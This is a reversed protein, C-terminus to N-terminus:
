TTYGYLMDVSATIATLTAGVAVPVTAGTNSVGCLKPAINRLTSGAATVGIMTPDTTGNAEMQGIYYLGSKAITVPAALAYSQVTSAALEVSTNDASVGLVKRTADAICGWNHSIGVSATTGTVFNVANVITNVPLYVAVLLLDGSIADITVSEAGLARPISEATAGAPALTLSSGAPAFGALAANLAKLLDTKGGSTPVAGGLTQIMQSIQAEVDGSQQLTALTAM